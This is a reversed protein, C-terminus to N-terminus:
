KGEARREDAVRAQFYALTRALGDRRLVRPEWGLIRRAKTIDPKRQQPDDQPLPKFVIETKAGTLDRIEKAFELISVEEPNGLNVPEVESSHLLRFIGEVLDDVYTFSRTQSGDGYVTIPEGRLGQGMFEPLARGDRLRMRPGYTNHAHVGTGAIFNEAGPVSFDFVHGTLVCPEVSKVSAWVLDGLRTANLRQKM